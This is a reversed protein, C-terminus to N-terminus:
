REKIHHVVAEFQDVMPNHGSRELVILKAKEKLAEAIGEAMSMPVVLDEKGQIITVECKINHIDGSGQIYGNHADSMNFRTLAYDVDVLNRQLLMEDIYRDYDLDNPRNGVNYIALDWLYKYFAKDKDQLAKLVPAVQVPDNAIDEKTMLLETLIPQGSADKKFMPYGTIGVSELLVVRNILDPNDAALQLAVGGGTSWGVVEIDKLRLKDIFLELDQSLDKLSDFREHYSSHGFGRLDVAFIKFTDYLADMLHDFHLSSSMNGHILLLVREGSGGERYALVENGVQLKKFEYERM